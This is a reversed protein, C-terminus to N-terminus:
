GNQNKKETGSPLFWNNHNKHYHYSLEVIAAIIHKDLYSVRRYGM